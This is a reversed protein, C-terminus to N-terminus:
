KGRPLTGSLFLKVASKIHQDLEAHHILHAGRFLAHQLPSATVMGIFLRAANLPDAMQLTGRSVQAQLYTAVLKETHMPGAECIKEALDPIRAVETLGLRYLSVADATTVRTVIITGLTTLATEPTCTNLVGNEIVVTLENVVLRKVAAILLAAKNPFMQYITRTSVGAARAIQAISALGYGENLFVTTAADLLLNLREAETGSRPRGVRTKPLGPMTPTAPQHIEQKDKKRTIAM